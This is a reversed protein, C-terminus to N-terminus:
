RDAGGIESQPILAYGLSSAARRLDIDWCALSVVSAPGIAMLAALHVADYGRLSMRETLDGAVALLDRDLAVESVGAWVRELDALAADRQASPLRGSRIAAALAARLEVYGIAACALGESDSASTLM